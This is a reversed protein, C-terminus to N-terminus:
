QLLKEIVKPFHEYELLHIKEALTEPTDESTLDCIAQFITTGEDFNKSVYHITIGSKKEHAAIVADHVHHGYMGKGGFKPLLAPHINIIKNPFAEILNEPVLKLFGALVILDIDYQKLLQIINDTENFDNKTFSQAPINLKKARELVFADKKDSLIISVKINKNNVFYESIRQANTGNGSAFIAIKKM